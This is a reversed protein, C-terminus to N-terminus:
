RDWEGSADDQGCRRRESGRKKVAVGRDLEGIEAELGDLEELLKQRRQAAYPLLPLQELEARGAQTWLKRKKQVGHSLAMAQLQNKSRTM